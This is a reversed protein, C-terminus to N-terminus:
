SDSLRIPDRGKMFRFNWDHDFRPHVPPCLVEDTLETSKDQGMKRTVDDGLGYNELAEDFAFDNM